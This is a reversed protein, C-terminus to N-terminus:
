FQKRGCQMRVTIIFVREESEMDLARREKQGTEISLIDDDFNPQRVTVRGMLDANLSNEMPIYNHWRVPVWLATIQPQIPGPAYQHIAGVRLTATVMASVPAQRLKSSLIGCIKDEFSSFQAENNQQLREEMKGELLEMEAKKSTRSNHGLPKRSVPFTAPLSCIRRTKLLLHPLGPIRQFKRIVYADDDLHAMRMNAETM